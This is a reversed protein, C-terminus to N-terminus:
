LKLERERFIFQTMRKVTDQINEPFIHPLMWFAHPRDTYEILEVPANVANLRKEVERSADILLDSTGVLILTRPWSESFPLYASSIFPDTRSVGSNGVYAAGMADYVSLSLVDKDLQAKAHESLQDHVQISYPAIAVIGPPAPRGSQLLLHALVLAHSGGASDGALFVNSVDYGQSLVYDYAAVLDQVAAPFVHEPVTALRYCPAAIVCPANGTHAAIGRLLQVYFEAYLPFTPHFVVNGGGHVLFIVRTHARDTDKAPHDGRHTYFFVPVREPKKLLRSDLLPHPSPSPPAIEIRLAIDEPLVGPDPFRAREDLTDAARQFPPLTNAFVARAQTVATRQQDTLPANPDM